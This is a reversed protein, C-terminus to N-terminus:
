IGCIKWDIAEDFLAIGLDANSTIWQKDSLSTRREEEVDKEATLKKLWRFYLIASNQYVQSNTRKHSMKYCM